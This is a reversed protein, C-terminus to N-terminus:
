KQEFKLTLTKEGLSFSVILEGNKLPFERKLFNGDFGQLILVEKGKDYKYKGSLSKREEEEEQYHVIFKGDKKLELHIFSFNKLCDTEGLRAEKCEYIGLYPKTIDSLNGKKFNPFLLLLSALGVFLSSKLKMSKM